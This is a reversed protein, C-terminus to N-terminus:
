TLSSVINVPFIDETLLLRLPHTEERGTSSPPFHQTGSSNGPHFREHDKPMGEEQSRPCRFLVEVDSAGARLARWLFNGLPIRGSAIGPGRHPHSGSRNHFTRAFPQLGPVISGCTAGHCPGVFFMSAKTLARKLLCPM